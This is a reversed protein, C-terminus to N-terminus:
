HTWFLDLLWLLSWILNNNVLSFNLSVTCFFLLIGCVGIFDLSQSNHVEVLIPHIRTTDDYWNTNFLDIDAVRHQIGKM